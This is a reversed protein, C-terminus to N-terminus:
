VSLFSHLLMGLFLSYLRISDFDVVLGIVLYGFVSTLTSAFCPVILQQVTQTFNEKLNANLDSKLQIEVLQEDNNAVLEPNDVKLRDTILLYETRKSTRNHHFSKNTLSKFLLLAQNCSTM